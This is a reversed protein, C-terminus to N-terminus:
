AISNQDAAPVLKELLAQTEADTSYILAGRMGRTLLVKYTNRVARDFEDAPARKVQSDHSLEPRAVWRDTRWVLDPGIIVGAYDYEFGQATYVCGVQGFGADDSAWFPTGPAGEHSTEKKNNWPKHWDGIQVDLQLPSGTKADSWPWCYGAAMRAGYGRDLMSRLRAEMPSPGAAVTLTFAGDGEWPVPGGPELGLLRLVWEEYLRSGGCRFQGDLDVERVGVGARQAAARIDTVTGIEGPRVVQHEDLLFVPVRAAAILEDVQPRGTRLRSPTYRNSSTARIRHAEDCILVDLGNTEADSFQNFFKFMEKVRPARQGAVRRLTKTFASSGTAHLVSRGQRSLEGVLSLAIVSKGSGPGGSVVIVEKSNARLSREVARMVLEYAVEQEDLLVFQERRQVEEAALALLQKSPRIVSSLLLDAEDVGPEPALRQQLYRLFEGRRQRTFMRGKEDPELMWLSGVDDDTANHLYAIGSVASYSTDLAAAFDGLYSCYRRVQEVPHLREGLGDLVCVTDSDELLHASSWQKLEVLVYQPHGSRPHRGCLVVDVRKSTLPLQYEILAEVDALGAEVLDTALVDLSREWSHVESPSPRHGVQHQFQETLTPVLSGSSIKTSISSVSGRFLPV